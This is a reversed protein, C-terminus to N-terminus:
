GEPNTTIKKWDAEVHWEFTEQFFITKWLISAQTLKNELTSQDKEFRTELKPIQKPKFKTETQNKKKTSKNPKFISKFFRNQDVKM